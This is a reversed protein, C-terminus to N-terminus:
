QTPCVEASDRARDFHGPKGLGVAETSSDHMGCTCPGTLSNLLMSQAALEPGDMYAGELNFQM